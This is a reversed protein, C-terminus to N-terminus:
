QSSFLSFTVSTFFNQQRGNKNIRETPQPVFGSSTIGEESAGESLDQSHQSHRNESFLGRRNQSHMATHCCDAPVGPILPVMGIEFFFCRMVSILISDPYGFIMPYQQGPTQPAEPNIGPAHHAADPCNGLICIALRLATDYQPHSLRLGSNRGDSEGTPFSTGLASPRPRRRPGIRPM